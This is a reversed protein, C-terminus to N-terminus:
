ATSSQRRAMEGSGHLSLLAEARRPFVSNCLSSPLNPRSAAVAGSSLFAQVGARIPPPTLRGNLRGTLSLGHSRLTLTLTLLFFGGALFFIFAMGTWSTRDKLLRGVINAREGQYYEIVLFLITILGFGVLTGIVDSSSWPKKQGGWQLALIFCIVGAMITFTGPLDMQLVKEKLTAKAPVSRAPTTFFFLIIAGAIGGIPLNIYFCWRIRPTLTLNMPNKDHIYLGGLLRRLSCEV